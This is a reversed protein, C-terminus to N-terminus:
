IFDGFNDLRPSFKTSNPGRLQQIVGLKEVKSSRQDLKEKRNIFTLTKLRKNGIKKQLISSCLIENTKSHFFNFKTWNFCHM